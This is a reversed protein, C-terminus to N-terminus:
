SEESSLVAHKLQLLVVCRLSYAKFLLLHWFLWLPTSYLMIVHSSIGISSDEAYFISKSEKVDYLSASPVILHTVERPLFLPCNLNCHFIDKKSFPLQFIKNEEAEEKGGGM